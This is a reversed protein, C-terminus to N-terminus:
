QLLSRKILDLRYHECWHDVFSLGKEGTLTRMWWPKRSHSHMLLHGQESWPAGKLRVFFFQHKIQSGDLPPRTKATCPSSRSVGCWCAPAHALSCVSGAAQWVDRRWWRMSSQTNPSSPLPICCKLSVIVFFLIFLSPFFRYIENRSDPLDEFLVTSDMLSRSRHILPDTGHCAAQLQTTLPSPHIILPQPALTSFDQFTHLITAAPNNHGFM